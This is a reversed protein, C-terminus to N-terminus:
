DFLDDGNIEKIQKHRREPKAIVVVAERGTAQNDNKNDEKYSSYSDYYHRILGIGYKREFVIGKERKLWTATRYMGEYTMGMKLYKKIQNEVMSPLYSSGKYDGLLLITLSTRFEYDSMVENLCKNCYNKGHFETLEDKPHKIGQKYCNPGYCTILRM